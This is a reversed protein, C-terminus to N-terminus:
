KTKLRKRRIGKILEDGQKITSKTNKDMESLAKKKAMQIATAGIATAAGLATGKVMTGLKAAGKQNLISKKILQSTQAKTLKAKKAFAKLEKVTKADIAQRISKKSATMGIATRKNKLGHKAEKLTQSLSKPM